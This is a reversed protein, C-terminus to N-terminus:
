KLLGAVGSVSNPSLFEVGNRPVAHLTEVGFKFKFFRSILM